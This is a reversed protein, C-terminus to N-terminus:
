PQYHTVIVALKKSSHKIRDALTTLYETGVHPDTCTYPEDLLILVFGEDGRTFMTEYYEHEHYFHSLGHEICDRKLSHTYFQSFPTLTASKAPAIAWSQALFLAQGFATLMTSKGSGNDGQVMLCTNDENLNVALPRMVNAPIAHHWLGDLNVHPQPSDVFTVFCYDKRTLFIRAINIYADVVGIEHVVEQIITAHERLETNMALISGPNLKSQLSSSWDARLLTRVASAAPDNSSATFIRNLFPVMDKSFQPASVALEAYISRVSELYCKLQAIHAQAFTIKKARTQMHTAMEYYGPIHLAWHAGQILYYVIAASSFGHAPACSSCNHSQHHGHHHHHDHHGDHANKDLSSFLTSIGVHLLAHELLPAFLNLYHLFFSASLAAKSHNLPVLPAQRFYFEDLMTQVTAQENFFELASELKACGELLTDVRLVMEPTGVLAKLHGQRQELESRDSSLTCLSRKFYDKGSNTHCYNLNKELTSQRVSDMISLNELDRVEVSLPAPSPYASYMVLQCVFFLIVSNKVFLARQFTLNYCNISINMKSPLHLLLPLVSLVSVPTIL